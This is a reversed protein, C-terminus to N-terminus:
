NLKRFYILEHDPLLEPHLIHVLDSLVTSPDTVGREYFDNGGNANVRADNNWVAGNVVPAFDAYRADFALFSALDSVGFAIPVWLDANIGAEYVTEFDFLASGTLEAAEPSDTLILRGGADNLLAAIYSRGGPIAWSDSFVSGWLVTPMEGATVDATLATLAEYRAAEAEYADNAAAEANFFAATFKIWEARGLPTLEAWDGSLVVPIGAEILVPHADYDPSGSGSTIVLDTESDLVLEVNVSSGFGVEVLEGAEGKSVVEPSNVYLLSDVGVLSDLVGLQVIHPLFTTGMTIARRTPIEILAADEFGDPTPTGCLVLLYRFIDDETAGPWPTTVTVLKYHNFYEITFGSASEVEAKDPFYDVTPNYDTVCASDPAAVAQSLAPAAFLVAIFSFVIAFLRTRM